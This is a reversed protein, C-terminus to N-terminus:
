KEVELIQELNFLCAEYGIRAITGSIATMEKQTLGKSILLDAAENNTTPFMSEKYPHRQELHPIILNLQQRQKCIFKGNKLSQAKAEKLQQELESIRLVYGEIEYCSECQLHDITMTKNRECQSCIETM